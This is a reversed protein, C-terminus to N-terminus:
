EGQKEMFLHKKAKEEEKRKEVAELYIDFQEPLAKLKKHIKEDFKQMEDYKKLLDMFAQTSDGECACYNKLDEDNMASIIKDFDKSTLFNPFESPKLFYFSGDAKYIKASILDGGDDFSLVAGYPYKKLIYECMINRYSMQMKFKAEAELAERPSKPEEIGLLAAYPCIPKLLEHKIQGTQETPEIQTKELAEELKQGFNSFLNHFKEIKATFVNAPQFQTIETVM